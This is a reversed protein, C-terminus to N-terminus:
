CNVAVARSWNAVLRLGWGVKLQDTDPPPVMLALPRNVAPVVAPPGYVTVAVLPPILPVALTETVATVGVAFYRM